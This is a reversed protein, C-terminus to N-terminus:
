KKTSYYVNLAKIVADIGHNTLPNSSQQPLYVVKDIPKAFFLPNVFRDLMDGKVIFATMGKGNKGEYTKWDM